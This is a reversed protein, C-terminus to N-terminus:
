RQANTRDRVCGVFPWESPWMIMSLPRESKGGPKLPLLTPGGQAVYAIAAHTRKAARIRKAIDSWVNRDVFFKTM